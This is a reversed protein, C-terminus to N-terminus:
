GFRRVGAELCCAKFKPGISKPIGFVVLIILKINLIINFNQHLFAMVILGVAGSGDPAENASVVSRGNVILLLLLGILRSLTVCM